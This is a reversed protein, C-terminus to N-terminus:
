AVVLRSTGTSHHGRLLFTLNSSVTFCINSRKNAWDCILAAMQDNLESVWEGSWETNIRMKM